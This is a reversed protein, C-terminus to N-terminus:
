GRKWCQWIKRPPLTERTTKMVNESVKGLQYGASYLSSKERLKKEAEEAARLEERSRGYAFM